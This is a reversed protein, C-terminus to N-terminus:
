SKNSDIIKNINDLMKRSNREVGGNEWEVRCDSYSLNADKHLSIKGEFDNINALRAIEEQIKNIIDPHFYFSLKEENKFSPFNELLFNKVMIESQEQEITPFIKEVMNQALEIVKRESEEERKEMESSLLMLKANIEELLKNQESLIESKAQNYGEEYGKAHAQEEKEAVEEERYTVIEEIVEPEEQEPQSDMDESSTKEEPIEEEPTIVAIEEKEQPATEEEVEIHSNEWDEVYPQNDEDLIFNDFQFKEFKVM